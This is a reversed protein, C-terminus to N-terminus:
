SIRFMFRVHSDSCHHGSGKAALFGLREQSFAAISRARVVRGNQGEPDLRHVPSQRCSTEGQVSQVLHRRRRRRQAVVRSRGQERHADRCARSGISAPAHQPRNGAEVEVRGAEFLGPEIGRCQQEDLHALVLIHEGHHLIGQAM